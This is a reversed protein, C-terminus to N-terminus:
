YAEKGYADVLMEQGMGAAFGEVPTIPRHSDFDEAHEVTPGAEVQMMAMNTDFSLSNQMHGEFVGIHTSKGKGHTRKYERWQPSIDVWKDGGPQGQHGTPKLTDRMQRVM